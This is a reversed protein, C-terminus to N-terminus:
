EIQKEINQSGDLILLHNRLAWNISHSVLHSCLYYNQNMLIFQLCTFYVRLKEYMEHLLIVYNLDTLLECLSGFRFDQESDIKMHM